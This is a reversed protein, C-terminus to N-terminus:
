EVPLEIETLYDDANDKNWIGDIYTERVLGNIKYGNDKAYKFLYAYAKSINEYPGLHFISLMKSDPLEKFKILDDERAAKEVQQSYRVKIDHDKYEGDLYEMFCYEPTVCHLDPNIKLCREGINPVFDMIDAYNKLYGEGYFFTGGKREKVIVQYNMKDEKLLNSIISLRMNLLNKEENLLILKNNLVEKVDKGNLIEKIQNISLGLQRYAKINYVDLLQSTSYYRYGSEELVREPKLLGVQEYYRLSKISLHALKSFEGIKLM